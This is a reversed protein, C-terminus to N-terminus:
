VKTLSDLAAAASKVRRRYSRMARKYIAPRRDLLSPWEGDRDVM